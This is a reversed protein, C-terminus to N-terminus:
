RWSSAGTGGSTFNGVVDRDGNLHTAALAVLETELRLMSPFATPDLANESLYM